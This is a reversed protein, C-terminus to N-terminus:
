ALARQGQDGQDSVAEIRLLLWLRKGTQIGFSSGNVDFQLTAIRGRHLTHGFAWGVLNIAIPRELSSRLRHFGCQQDHVVFRCHTTDQHHAKLQSAIANDASFISFFGKLNEM